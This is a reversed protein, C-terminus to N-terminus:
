IIWNSKWSNCNQSYKLEFWSGTNLDHRGLSTGRGSFCLSSFFSFSSFFSTIEAPGSTIIVYGEWIILTIWFAFYLQGGGGMPKSCLSQLLVISFYFKCRLLVQFWVQTVWACLSLCWAVSPYLTLWGRHFGEFFINIGSVFNIGWSSVCKSM